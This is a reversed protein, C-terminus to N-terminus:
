TQQLEAQEPPASSMHRSPTSGGGDRQPHQHSKLPRQENNQGVASYLWLSSSKSEVGSNM